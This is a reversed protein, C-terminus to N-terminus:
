SSRSPSLKRVRGRPALRTATAGCTQPRPKGPMQVHWAMKKARDALPDRGTDVAPQFKPRDGWVERGYCTIPSLQRRRIGILEREAIDSMDQLRRQLMAAERVSEGGRGM